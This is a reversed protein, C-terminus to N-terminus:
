TRYNNQQLALLVRNIEQDLQQMLVNIQTPHASKVLHELQAVLQRLTPVGCYCCAGHLTHLHFGLDPWNKQQYSQMINHQLLPLEQQLLGLIESAVHAKNNNLRLCETWDIPNIPNQM